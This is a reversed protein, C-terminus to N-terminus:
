RRRIRSARHVEDVRRVGIGHNTVVHREASARRLAGGRRQGCARVVNSRIVRTISVEIWRLAVDDRLYDIGTRRIRDYRARCVVAGPRQTFCEIVHAAASGDGEVDGSWSWM